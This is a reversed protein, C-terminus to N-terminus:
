ISRMCQKMYFLYRLSDELLRVKWYSVFFNFDTLYRCFSLIKINNTNIRGPSVPKIM